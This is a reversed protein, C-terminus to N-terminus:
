EGAAYSPNVYNGGSGDTYPSVDYQYADPIISPSCIQTLTNGTYYYYCNTITQSGGLTTGTSATTTADTTWGSTIGSGTLNFLSDFIKNMCSTSSSGDLELISYNMTVVCYYTIFGIPNDYPTTYERYWPNNTCTEGDITSTCGCNPCAPCTNCCGFCSCCNTCGCCTKCPSCCM